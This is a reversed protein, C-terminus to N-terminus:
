LVDTDLLGVSVEVGQEAGVAELTTRLDDDGVSEPLAVEMIQVYMPAGTEEGLVRPRLDCVNAGLEALAGTVAALIGPHDAGYVSVVWGPASPAGSAADEVPRLGIAELGLEDGAAAVDRALADFVLDAPATVVLTMAFHGRLISMQSDTVNVGHELLVRGVGAIIGPRDVGVASLVFTRVRM